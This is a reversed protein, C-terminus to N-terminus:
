TGLLRLRQKQPSQHAHQFRSRALLFLYRADNIASSPTSPVVLGTYANTGYPDSEIFGFEPNPGNTVLEYRGSCLSSRLGESVGSPHNRLRIVNDTPSPM